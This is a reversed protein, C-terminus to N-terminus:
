NSPQPKMQDTVTEASNVAAEMTVEDAYAIISPGADAARGFTLLAPVSEAIDKTRAIAEVQKM